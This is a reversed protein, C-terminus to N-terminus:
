STSGGESLRRNDDCIVGLSQRSFVSSLVRYTTSNMRASTSWGGGEGRQTAVTASPLGCRSVLEELPRNRAPRPVTRALQAPLARRDKQGEYERRSGGGVGRADVHLAVGPDAPDHLGPERVERVHRPCHRLTRRHGPVQASRLTPPFIARTVERSSVALQAVASSRTLSPPDVAGLSKKIRDDKRWSHGDWYLLGRLIADLHFTVVTAISVVNSLGNIEQYNMSCSNKMRGFWEYLSARRAMSTSLCARPNAGSNFGAKRGRGTHDSGM